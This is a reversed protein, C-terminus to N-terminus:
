NVAVPTPMAMGADARPSSIVRVNVVVRGAVVMGPVVRVDGMVMIDADEMRRVVISVERKDMRETSDTESAEPVSVM